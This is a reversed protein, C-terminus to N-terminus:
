FRRQDLEDESWRGVTFDVPENLSETFSSFTDPVSSSKRADNHAFDTGSVKDPDSDVIKM